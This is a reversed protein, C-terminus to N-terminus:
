PKRSSLLSKFDAVRVTGSILVLGVFIAGAVLPALVSSAPVLLSTVFAGFFAIAICKLPITWNLLFGSGRYVLYLTLAATCCDVILSSVAVGLSGFRPALFMVLCAKAALAGVVMKLAARQAHLVYLVPGTTNTIAKFFLLLGLVRLITAGPALDPGLLRMLFDASALIACVAAGAFVFVMDTARQCSHHFSDVSHPWFSAAVPYLTSGIGTLAVVFPSIYRQAGSYYAVDSLSAIKSLLLVDMSEYVIVVLGIVGLASATHLSWRIDSRTVGHLSLEFRSRGLLYCGGFFAARSAMHCAMLTPITVGRGSVSWVLGIMLFVSLLEAAVEREITLSAKFLTHYILTGAFFVLSGVAFFAGQIVAAPYGMAFILVLFAIGAAIVQVLKAGTLSRLLQVGRDPTRNIERVMIDSTGFDVLWEAIALLVLLLSYQGFVEVGYTRAISSAVVLRALSILNRGVFHATANRLGSRLLNRTPIGLAGASSSM